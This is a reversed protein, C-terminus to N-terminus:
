ENYSRVDKLFKKELRRISINESGDTSVAVKWNVSSVVIM